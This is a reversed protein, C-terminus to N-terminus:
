PVFLGDTQLFTDMTGCTFLSGVYFGDSPQFRNKHIDRFIVNERLEVTKDHLPPKWLDAVQLAISTLEVM